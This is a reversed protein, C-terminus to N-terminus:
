DGRVSALIAEVLSFVAENGGLSSATKKHRHAHYMAAEVVAMVIM